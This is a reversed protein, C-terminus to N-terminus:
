RRCNPASSRWDQNTIRKGADDFAQLRSVVCACGNYAPCNFIFGRDPSLPVEHVVGQSGIVVVRAVRDSAVGALVRSSSANVQRGPAFFSATPSCGGGAGGGEFVFTCINARGRITQKFLYVSWTRKTGKYTAIRRSDGPRGEGPFGTFTPPLRDTAVATRAFVSPLNPSSAALAVSSVTACVVAALALRLYM